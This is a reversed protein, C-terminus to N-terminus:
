KITTNHYSANTPINGFTGNIVSLQPKRLDTKSFNFKRHISINQKNVPVSPYNEFKEILIKLPDGINM